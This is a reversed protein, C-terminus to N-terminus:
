FNYKLNVFIEHTLIKAEWPFYVVIPEHTPDSVATNTKFKGGYYFRYGADLGFKKNIVWSAGAMGQMALSYDTKTHMYSRPASSIPTTSHFNSTVNQAVGLGVGIFPTLMADSGFDVRLGDFASGNFMVNVMLNTNRIDLLRNKHGVPYIISAGTFTQYKAYHYIGRWASSLSVSLYKSFNYGFGLGFIPTNSLRASYGEYSQDWFAPDIGALKLEAPFSIGAEIQAYFLQQNIANAINVLGLLGVSGAIITKLM